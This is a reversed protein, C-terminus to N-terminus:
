TRDDHHDGTPKTQTEHKAVAQRAWQQNPARDDAATARLADLDRSHRLDVIRQRIERFAPVLDRAPNFPTDTCAPGLKTEAESLATHWGNWAMALDHPKM